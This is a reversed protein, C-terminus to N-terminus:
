ERWRPLKQMMEDVMKEAKARTKGMFKMAANISGEWVQEKSAL